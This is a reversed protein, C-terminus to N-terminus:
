QHKELPKNNKKKSKLHQANRITSYINLGMAPIATKILQLFISFDVIHHFYFLFTIASHFFRLLISHVHVHLYYFTFIPKFGDFFSCRFKSFLFRSVTQTFYFLLSFSLSLISYLTANCVREGNFIM